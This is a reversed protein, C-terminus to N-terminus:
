FGLAAEPGPGNKARYERGTRIWVDDGPGQVEELIVKATAIPIQVVLRTAICRKDRSAWMWIQGKDRVFLGNFAAEPEAKFCDVDGYIPVSMREWKNVNIWLDYTKEDAMVEYHERAGPQFTHSRMYYMFSPIDRTDPRITFTKTRGSQRSTWHAVNNTRDFVTVENYRHSGESLIKEFRVPLFTAPDVISEISDDVPYLKELVRNSKTRFHISLLCRGNENTWATSAVAIGVPIIGWYVRYVLREGVPWHAGPLYTLNTGAAAACAPMGTPAPTAAATMQGTGAVAPTVPVEASVCVCALTIMVVAALMGTKFM